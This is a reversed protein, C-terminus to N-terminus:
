HVNKDDRGQQLAMGVTARASPTMGFEKTLAFLKAFAKDYIKLVPHAVQEGFRNIIIMPAEEKLARAELYEALADLLIGVGVSDLRTLLGLSGLTKRIEPWWKHGSESVWDPCDALPDLPEPEEIEARDGALASGRAKLLVTPVRAPGGGHNTGPRSGAM